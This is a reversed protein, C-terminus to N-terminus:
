HSTAAFLSQSNAMAYALQNAMPKKHCLHLNLGLSTKPIQPPCLPVPIPKTINVLTGHKHEYVM